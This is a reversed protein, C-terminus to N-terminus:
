PYNVSNAPQWQGGYESGIYVMPEGGYGNPATRAMHDMAEWKTRNRMATRDTKDGFSIPPNYYPNDDAVSVGLSIPNNLVSNEWNWDTDKKEPFLFSTDIPEYPKFITVPKSVLPEPFKWNEFSMSKLRNTNLISNEWNWDTDKKKPSFDFLDPTLNGLNLNLSPSKWSTEWTKIPEKKKPLFSNLDILEVRDTKSNFEHTIPKGSWRGPHGSLGDQQFIMKVADREDQHIMDHVIKPIPVTPGALRGPHHNERRQFLYSYDTTDKTKSVDKRESDDKDDSYSSKFLAVLGIGIISLTIPDM